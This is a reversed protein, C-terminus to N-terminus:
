TYVPTCCAFVAFVVSRRLMRLALPEDV